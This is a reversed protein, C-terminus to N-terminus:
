ALLVEGFVDEVAEGSSLDLQRRRESRLDLNEEGFAAEKAV